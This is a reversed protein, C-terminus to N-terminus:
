EKKDLDRIAQGTGLMILAVALWFVGAVRIFENVFGFVSV